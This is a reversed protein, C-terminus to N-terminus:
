EFSSILSDVIDPDQAATSMCKRCLFYEVEDSWSFDLDGCNFCTDLMEDSCGECLGQGRQHACGLHDDMKDTCKECLRYKSLDSSSYYEDCEGCFGYEGSNIELMQKNMCSPCVSNLNFDYVKSKESFTERCRDCRFTEEYSCSVILLPLAISFLIAFVELLTNKLPRKMSIVM